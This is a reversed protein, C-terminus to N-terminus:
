DAENQAPLDALASRLDGLLSEISHYAPTEPISAATQLSEPLTGFFNQDLQGALWAARQRAFAPFLQRFRAELYGAGTSAGESLLKDGVATAVTGGVADGALHLAGQIAGDAVFPAVADGLPGAGTMFLAVSLAPRSVAALGDIRRILAYAQPSDSRLQALERTVFQRLEAEFDIEQHARRLQEILLTRREGTLLADLRKALLPDGLDRITTLNRFLAEMTALIAEWEKTRYEEILTETQSASSGRLLRLPASVVEGVRGYFGHIKASWGERQESWWARIQSILLRSPVSPWHDVEALQQSALTEAAERFRSSRTRIERLWSPIGSEEEVLQDLSGALTQVKIEGFRLESLDTLLNRQPQDTLPESSGSDDRPWSFEYFALRNEEAAKRDNPAVYVAHPAIGTEDCFTELWTTVYPEDDPLLCQNFVVLVLKQEASAKRFFEKVAADNYKQQTLVAILVDATQRIHDARSWNVRAVSDIDPTDLVLLNGPCTASERWFLRHEEAEELAAEADDAPKLVFGPFIPQLPGRETFGQPLIATPHKTGSALPSTASIRSGAIHNFIVSKGINTGGVVAVVLFTDDRLQPVLKRELLEYWEREALPPLDLADIARALEEVSSSLRSVISRVESFTESM